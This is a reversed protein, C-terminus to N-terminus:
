APLIESPCPHSPPDFADLFTRPGARHGPPCSGFLVRNELLKRKCVDENEMPPIIGGAVWVGLSAPGRGSALRRPRCRFIGKQLFKGGGARRVGSVVKGPGNFNELEM